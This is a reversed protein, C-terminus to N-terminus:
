SGHGRVQLKGNRTEEQECPIIGGPLRFRLASGNRREIPQPKSLRIANTLLFNWKRVIRVAVRVSAGGRFVAGCRRKRTEACKRVGACLGELFASRSGYIHNFSVLCFFVVCIRARLPAQTRLASIHPIRFDAGNRCKRANNGTRAHTRPHASM